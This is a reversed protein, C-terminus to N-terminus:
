CSYVAIIFLLTLAFIGVMVAYPKNMWPSTFSNVFLVTVNGLAAFVNDKCDTRTQSLPVYRMGRKNLFFSISASIIVASFCFVLVWASVNWTFYGSSLKFM